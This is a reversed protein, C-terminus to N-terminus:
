TGSERGGTGWGTTAMVRLWVGGRYAPVLRVRVHVTVSSGLTLLLSLTTVSHFPGLCIAPYRYETVEAM